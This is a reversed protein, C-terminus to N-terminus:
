LFGPGTLLRAEALLAILRLVFWFTNTYVPVVVAPSASSRDPLPLQSTPWPVTAVFKSVNKPKVPPLVGGAAVTARGVSLLLVVVAKLARGCIEPVTVILFTVWTVPTLITVVPAVAPKFDIPNVLPVDRTLSTLTVVAVPFATSKLPVWVM